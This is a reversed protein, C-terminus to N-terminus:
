FTGFVTILMKFMNGRKIRVVVIFLYFNTDGYEVYPWETEILYTVQGFKLLM